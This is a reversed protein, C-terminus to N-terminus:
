TRVNIVRPQHGNDSKQDSVLDGQKNLHYRRENGYKPDIAVYIKEEGVMEVRNVVIFHVPEFVPGKNSADPGNDDIHMMPRHGAALSADIADTLEKGKGPGSQEVRQADGLKVDYKEYIAAYAKDSLLSAGSALQGNSRKAGKTEFAGAQTLVTNLEDPRVERRLAQGLKMAMCTLMCGENGLMHDSNGLELKNWRADSQVYMPMGDPTHKIKYETGQAAATKAEKLAKMTAEDAVGTQPLDNKKQFAKLAKATRDGFDGDQKLPFGVRQLEAQLRKVDDGRAGKSLGKPKDAQQKKKASESKSSTTQDTKPGEKVNDPRAETSSLTELIKEAGFMLLAASITPGSFGLAAATEFARLAAVADGEFSSVQNVSKEHAVEPPPAQVLPPASLGEADHTSVAVGGTSVSNVKSM